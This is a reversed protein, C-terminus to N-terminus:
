ISKIFDQIYQKRMKKEMVNGAAKRYGKIGHLEDDDRYTTYIALLIPLLVKLYKDNKHSEEKKEKMAETKIKALQVDHNINEFAPKKTNIEKILSLAKMCTIVLCIILLIIAIYLIYYNYPELNIKM